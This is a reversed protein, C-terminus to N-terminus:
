KTTGERKVVLEYLGTGSLGAFAGAWLRLAIDIDTFPFGLAGILLGAVLSLVPLINNPLNVSRKILEVFASAIPAILTAFILVQTMVDNTM